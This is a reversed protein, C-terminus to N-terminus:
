LGRGRAGRDQGSYEAVVRDIQYRLADMTQDPLTVVRVGERRRQEIANADLSRSTLILTPKPSQAPIPHDRRAAGRTVQLYILGNAVRNRRAIERLVFKLSGRAMPMAM